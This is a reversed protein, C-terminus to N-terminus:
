ILADYQLLWTAPLRHETALEIQHRVPEVLDMTRRPEVGRISNVINVIRPATTHM